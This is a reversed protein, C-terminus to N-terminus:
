PPVADPVADPLADPVAGSPSGLVFGKLYFSTKDLTVDSLQKPFDEVSSCAVEDSVLSSVNLCKQETFYNPQSNM